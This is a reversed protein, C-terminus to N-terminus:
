AATVPVPIQSLNGARDRARVTFSSGAFTAPLDTSWTTGTGWSTTRAVTDGAYVDYATSATDTNGTWRLHITGDVNTTAALDAPAAPATGDGRCFRSFGGSKQWVGATSKTTLTDGGAWLCGNTDVLLAWPGRVARTTMQPLFSTIQHGTTADYAGVYRLSDIDDFTTPMPYARGDGYNNSLICHCSGYVVNGDVASAQFDGGTGSDSRTINGRMLAFNSRNYMFFAHEAGGLWFRDGIEIGTQQYQRPRTGTSPVWAPLGTVVRATADTTVPVFRSAWSAGSNMTSMFGGYYIRGGDNSKAVFIPTGDFAPNWKADPTGTASDLRAGGKAYVYSSTGGAVHSFRGGLYLTAGILDMGTVTGPTVTTVKTTANTSRQQLIVKQSADAVGTAPDLEIFGAHAVGNVTTFEGGVALKGNPLAKLTNVKGNLVPLFTPVFAGTAVDFAALYRQVKTSAPSYQDVQAFNGGVYMRTGIQAFARVETDRETTFGNALGSVGAPQPAAQSAAATTVPQAPSGAALSTFTLDAWRVKPRLYLQAFGVPSVGNTPSWLYSTAASSGKMGPGYTFGPLFTNSVTKTTSLGRLGTDLAIGATTGGTVAAGSFTTTALPYGGNLAWHWTGFRSPHMRVEQWLTGAVNSARRVRIGDPLAAVDGSDLLGNVTAGPLLKPAFAATGTRTAGVEAPTGQGDQLFSWGERGRGILVWGGGETSMDCFFQQPYGLTPTYLWYLGDAAAPNTQKVDWCSALATAASLGDRAPAAQAGTSPVLVSAAAVATATLSLLIRHRM